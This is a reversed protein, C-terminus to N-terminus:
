VPFALLYPLFGYFYRVSSSLVRMSITSSLCVAEAASLDAPALDGTWPSPMSGAKPKRSAQCANSTM